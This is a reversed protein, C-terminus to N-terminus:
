EGCLLSSQVRAVQLTRPEKNATVCAVSRAPVSSNGRVCQMLM